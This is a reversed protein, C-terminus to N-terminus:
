QMKSNTEISLSNARSQSIFCMFCVNPTLLMTATAILGHHMSEKSVVSSSIHSQPPAAKRIGIRSEGNEGRLFVVSDGVAFTKGKVFENKFTHKFKWVHDHLDKAVIEQSPTLLPPLCEVSDKKFISFVGHKSTDSATLVKTFYNFNQENNDNPISMEVEPSCPLLSVKAYVEYTSTEMKIKISIVNCDIKSSIDFIPKLQCM